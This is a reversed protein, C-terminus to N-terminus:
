EYKRLLNEFKEMSGLESKAGWTFADETMDEWQSQPMTEMYHGVAQYDGDFKRMDIFLHTPVFEEINWGGWYIPVTKCKFANFIRETIFDYSWMPHHICEFALMFRYQAILELQKRHSHHIPSGDPGQYLQGGWAAAAYVDARLVTSEDIALMMPERELIIDGCDRVGTDYLKNLACIGAIRDAFTPWSAIENYHNCFVNGRLHVLHTGSRLIRPDKEIKSLFKSNWCIYTKFNKIKDVDWNDPMGNYPELAVLCNHEEDTNTGGTFANANFAVTPHDEVLRWFENQNIDIM